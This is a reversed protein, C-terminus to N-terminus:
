DLLMPPLNEPDFDTKFKEKQKEWQELQENSINETNPLSGPNVCNIKKSFPAVHPTLPEPGTIPTDTM